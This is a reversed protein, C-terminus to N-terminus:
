LKYYVHKVTCGCETDTISLTLIATTTIHTTIVRNTFVIPGTADIHYKQSNLSFFYDSNITLTNNAYSFPVTVGSTGYNLNTITNNNNITMTGNPSVYSAANPTNFVALSDSYTGVLVSDTKDGKKCSFLITTIGLIILFLKKKM